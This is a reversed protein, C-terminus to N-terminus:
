CFEVALIKQVTEFPRVTAVRVASSIVCLYIESKIAILGFIGHVGIGRLARYDMLDVNALSSFEAICRPPQPTTLDNQPDCRFILAHTETTVAISRKHTGQVLVRLSM